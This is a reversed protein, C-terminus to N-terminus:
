LVYLFCVFFGFLWYYFLLLLSSSLLLLLSSSSSLLLLSSSSSLLSLADGNCQNMVKYFVYVYYYFVTTHAVRDIPHHM